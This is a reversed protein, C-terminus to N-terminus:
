VFKGSAPFDDESDKLKEVIGANRLLKLLKSIKLYELNLPEGQSWYFQFLKHLKTEVEQDLFDVVEKSYM